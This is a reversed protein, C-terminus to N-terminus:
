FNAILVEHRPTQVNSESESSTVNKLEPFRIEVISRVVEDMTPRNDVVKSVCSLAIQLMQVMEEEVYEGGRLLEEDFVEATWEESVVSKVWRPLDVMDHDYGSYGLPTKGTLIELLLVGFSYVDSKQNTIKKSETVEQARYGNSRSMTPSTNMLPTLGVDTICGDHEQTILVNTSKINGHIFKSGVQTHISAIGKAAGLAIKMRSDWNLPTKAVGKNGIKNPFSLYFM